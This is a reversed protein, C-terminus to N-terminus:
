QWFKNTFNLGCDCVISTLMGHQKVIQDMFYQAVLTPTFRHPLACFHAYKSLIDVVVMIVFKNGLKPLGTIFDMSVNTSISTPIPFPQLTGLLNITEGKHCQCVHFETIFALIGIKM